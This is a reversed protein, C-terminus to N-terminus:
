INKYKETFKTVFAAIPASHFQNGLLRVHDFERASHFDITVTQFAAIFM